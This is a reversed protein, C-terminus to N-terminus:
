PWTSYPPLLHSRPIKLETECFILIKEMFDTFEKTDLESTRRIRCIRKRWDIKSKEKTFLFQSKFVEKWELSTYGIDSDHELTDCIKHLWANQLSSRRLSVKEVSFIYRGDKLSQIAGQLSESAQINSWSKTIYIKKSM